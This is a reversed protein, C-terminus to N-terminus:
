GTPEDLKDQEEQMQRWNIKGTPGKPLSEVFEVERPVKYASMTTRAWDIIDQPETKGVAEQRLVIMAKPTQGRYPDNRSIVCAEQVAPHEYLMGEVEAPWIKFGSANIMRKLRDAIFFYGDEDIRGLDGTRFWTKGDLEIFSDKTAQENEWYGLFVQPGRSIIEGVEGAPAATMTETDLIIAETNIIPIGLCGHKAAHMPNAHTPAATETLGYGECYEIGFVTKVKEAAARPMAAGGGGIYRISSFDYTDLKPDAFLDLMMTPINSWHTIKEDEILRAAIERDWRPMIVVKAGEVVSAFLCAVLGTIHFMPVVSLMADGQRLGQLYRPQFSTAMLTRHSHMCAKPLGTTGSTFMLLALDDASLKVTSPVLEQSILDPWEHVQTTAIAPAPHKETLWDRWTDPVADPRDFLDGVTFLILHDLRKAPELNDQAAAFVQALDGSTIAVKARTSGICHAVEGAKNMPNIMVPVAGCRFIAFVAAVFQPNNQSCLAVRDGKRVGLNQLSGALTEADRHLQSWTCTWGLFSLAAANSFRRAQLDLYDWLTLDGYDMEVPLGPAFPKRHLPQIM